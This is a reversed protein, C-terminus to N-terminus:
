RISPPAAPLSRGTAAPAAQAPTEEAAPPFRVVFTAGQGEESELEIRGSLREVVSKVISLGLGTGKGPDKTTFLTEFIKERLAAPVGPGNDAVRLLVDGGRTETRIRIARQGAPGGTLLADRANAILNLVIQQVLVEDAWVPPLDHALDCHLAIRDQHLQHSLLTCARQVCGNLGVRHLGQPKRALERFHEIISQAQDTGDLISRVADSAKPSLHDTNRALDRAHFRIATLPHALDHAMTASVLGLTSMKEAHLLRTQSTRLQELAEDLERTREQVKEELHQNMDTLDKQSSLLAKLMRARSRMIVGFEDDPMEAEPISGAAPDGQGAMAENARLLTQIPQYILRNLGAHVLLVTACVVAVVAAVFRLAFRILPQLVAESYTAPEQGTRFAYQQALTYHADLLRHHDVVSLVLLISEVLLIACTMQVLIERRLSKM